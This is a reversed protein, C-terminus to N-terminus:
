MSPGTGSLIELLRERRLALDSAEYLPGNEAAVQALARQVAPPRLNIAGVQVLPIWELLYRNTESKKRTEPGSLAMSGPNVQVFFYHAMRTPEGRTKEGGEADPHSFAFELSAIQLGTEEVVERACAEEASEGEEIHGGPFVYFERQARIRHILLIHRKSIIIASARDEMLNIISMSHFPTPSPLLFGKLSYLIHPLLIESPPPSPPHHNRTTESTSNYAIKLPPHYYHLHDM